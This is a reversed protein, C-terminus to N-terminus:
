VRAQMGGNIGITEGTLYSANTSALFAVADACEDAEGFRGLPVLRNPDTSEESNLLMKSFDSRIIGPAIANVRINRRALSQSLSKTVGVLASKMISYAGIGDIPSYGAISSVFVINGNESKELHPLAEQTLLFASKVNVNLLKDWQSDSVDMLDGRHPNFSANSVLVDLKNFREVAFEILKRRDESIGVHAVCGACEIGDMQLAKVANHVNAEKRSSVVVKAGEKGLQRAIAFGIGKTSATVVAVSETLFKVM